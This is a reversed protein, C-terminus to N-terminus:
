ENELGGIIEKLLSKAKHIRQYLTNASCGLEMAAAETNLESLIAIHVTERYFEPLLEIAQNLQKLAPNEGDACVTEYGELKKNERMRKRLIDYSESVVIRAVWGSLAAQESRFSMRRQWAKILACQVADDAEAASNVIKIAIARYLNLKERILLEFVTKLPDNQIEM